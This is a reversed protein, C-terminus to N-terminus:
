LVLFYLNCHIPFNSVRLSFGDNSLNWYPIISLHFDEMILFKRLNLANNLSTEDDSDEEEENEERSEFNVYKVYQGPNPQSHDNSKFYFNWYLKELLKQTLGTTSHKLVQFFM